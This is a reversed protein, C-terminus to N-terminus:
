EYKDFEVKDEIDRRTERERDRDRDRRLHDKEGKLNIRNGCHRDRGGKGREGEGEGEGEGRQLRRGEWEGKLVSLYPDVRRGPSSNGLPLIQRVLFSNKM